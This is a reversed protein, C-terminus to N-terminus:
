APQARPGFIHGVLAVLFIVVTGITIVANDIEFFTNAAFIVGGIIGAIASYRQIGDSDTSISIWVFLITYCVALVFYPIDM